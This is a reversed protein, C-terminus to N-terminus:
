VVLVPLWVFYAPCWDHLKIIVEASEIMQTVPPINLSRLQVLYIEGNKGIIFEIDSKGNLKELERSIDRLKPIYGRKSKPINPWTEDDRNKYVETRWQVWKEDTVAEHDGGSIAMKFDLQPLSTHIVGYWWEIGEIFEQIVIGMSDWGLNHKRRYRMAEHSRISDRVERLATILYSINTCDIKMSTYVWSFSHKGDELLSNSRVMINKWKWRQFLQELESQVWLSDPDLVRAVSVKSHIFRNELLTDLEGPSIEEYAPVKFWLADVSQM